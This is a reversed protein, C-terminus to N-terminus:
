QAKTAVQQLGALLSNTGILCVILGFFSVGEILAASIIMVTRISGVAEPQRAIGEASSAGIRGIGFGAGIAVLGEGIAALGVGLGIGLQAMGEM